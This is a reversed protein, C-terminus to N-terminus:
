IVLVTLFSICFFKLSLKGKGEAPQRSKEFLFRAPFLDQLM